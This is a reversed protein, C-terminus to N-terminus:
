ATERLGIYRPPRMTNSPQPRTNSFTSAKAHRGAYFRCMLRNWILGSSRKRVANNPSGYTAYMARALRHSYGGTREPYSRSSHRM